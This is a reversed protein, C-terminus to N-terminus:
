WGALARDAVPHAFVIQETGPLTGRAWWVLVRAVAEHLNPNRAEVTVPTPQVDLPNPRSTSTLDPTGTSRSAPESTRM